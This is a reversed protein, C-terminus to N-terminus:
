GNVKERKEIAAIVISRALYTTIKNHKVLFRVAVHPMYGIDLLKAAQAVLAKRRKDTINAM